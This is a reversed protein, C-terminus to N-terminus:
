ELMSREDSIATTGFRCDFQDGVDGLLKAFVDKQLAESENGKALSLLTRGDNLRLVRLGVNSQEQKTDGLIEVGPMAAQLAERLKYYVEAGEFPLYTIALRVASGAPAAMSFNKCIYPKSWWRQKHYPYKRLIPNKFIRKDDTKHLGYDGRSWFGM